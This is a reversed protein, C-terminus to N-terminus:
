RALDSKVLKAVIFDAFWDFFITGEALKSRLAQRNYTGDLGWINQYQKPNDIIDKVNDCTKYFNYSAYGMPLSVLILPIGAGTGILAIGLIFLAISSALVATSYSKAEQVKERLEEKEKVYSPNSTEHVGEFFNSVFSSM